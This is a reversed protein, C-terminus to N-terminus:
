QADDTVLLVYEGHSAAMSRAQEISTAEPFMGRLRELDERGEQVRLIKADGHSPTNVTKLMRVGVKKNLTKDRGTSLVVEFRVFSSNHM